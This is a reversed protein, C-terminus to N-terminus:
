SPPEEEKPPEAPPAYDRVIGVNITLAGDLEHKQTVMGLVDVIKALASLRDYMEIKSSGGDKTTTRQISKVLKTNLGEAQLEKLSRGELFEEFEAVDSGFAIEALAIKCRGPTIGEKDLRDKIAARVRPHALIDCADAYASSKSYGASIAAKVAKFGNDLYAAVFAAQKDSLSDQAVGVQAVIRM